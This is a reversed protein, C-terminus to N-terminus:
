GHDEKNALDELYRQRQRLLRCEALLELGSTPRKKAKFGLATSIREEARSYGDARGRWYIKRFTQDAVVRNQMRLRKYHTM